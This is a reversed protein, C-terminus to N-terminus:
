GPWYEGVRWPPRFLDHDLAINLTAWRYEQDSVTVLPNPAFPLVPPLFATAVTFDFLRDYSSLVQRRGNRSDIRILQLRFPDGAYIWPDQPNWRNFTIGKLSELDYERPAVTQIEAAREAAPRSTDELTKIAIRQVGGECTSSFYLWGGRVALSGAGPAFYGAGRLPLGGVTNESHKFTCPGLKPLPAGDPVLAPVITGRRTILWLGGYVSESVVYEGHPLAEIDEAFGMQRGTFDVKRVLKAKFAGHRRYRYEYVVPPGQPPFGGADLVVLRGSRPVRLTFPLKFDGPLVAEQRGTFRDLVVVRPGAVSVGIGPETVFVYREDGAVGHILSDRTALEAVRAGAPPALLLLAALAALVWRM